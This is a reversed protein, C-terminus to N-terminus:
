VYEKEVAVGTEAIGLQNVNLQEAFLLQLDRVNIPFKCCFFFRAKVSISNNTTIAIMAM